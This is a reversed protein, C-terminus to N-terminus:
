SVEENEIEIEFYDSHGAVTWRPKPYPGRTVLTPYIFFKECDYLDTTNQARQRSGAGTEELTDAKSPARPKAPRRRERREAITPGRDASTATKSLIHVPLGEAPKRRRQFGFSM